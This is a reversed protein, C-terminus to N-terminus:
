TISCLPIFPQRKAHSRRFVQCRRRVYAYKDTHPRPKLCIESAGGSVYNLGQASQSKNAEVFCKECHREEM